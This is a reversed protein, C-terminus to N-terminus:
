TLISKVKVKVPRKNQATGYDDWVISSADTDYLEM